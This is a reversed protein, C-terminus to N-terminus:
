WGISHSGYKAAMDTAIIPAMAGGFIGRLSYALAAGTYRVNPKFLEPLYAGM